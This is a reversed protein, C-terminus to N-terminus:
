QPEPGLLRLVDAEHSLSYVSLEGADNVHAIQHAFPTTCAFALPVRSSRVRRAGGTGLALLDRRDPSLVLLTPEPEGHSPGLVGCPRQGGEVRVDVSSGERERLAHLLTWRGEGRNVAALGVLPHGHSGRHCGFLVDAAETPLDLELDDGREGAGVCAFRVSPGLPAVFAVLALAQHATLACARTRIVRADSTPGVQTLRGRSDLFAWSGPGDREHLKLLSSVGRAIPAEGADDLAPAEVVLPASAEGGRRGLERIVFRDGRECAVALRNGVWGAAVLAEGKPPTFSSSRGEPGARPSNPVPLAIVGGDDTTAILRRGNASFFATSAATIRRRVGGVTTQRSPAVVAQAFPDRLLRTCEPAPPLELTLEVPPRAHPRITLLLARAGPEIVEGVELCSAGLRAAESAMAAGGVLWVEDRRRGLGLAELRAEADGASPPRPSRAALLVGLTSASVAEQWLGGPAQLVSWRLSAGAAEARQALVVMAVLHAIRPAGLQAPGADLLCACVEGGQPMRRALELFAHEGSVARRLFEDPVESALLWETTLLREYPGKRSIGDFGDPEGDGPEARSRMPGVALSLRQVWPGITVAVEPQFAELASRWPLLAKPLEVM